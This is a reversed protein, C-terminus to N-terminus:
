PETWRESREELNRAGATPRPCGIRDEAGQWFFSDYGLPFHPKRLQRRAFPEQKGLKPGAGPDIPELLPSSTRHCVGARASPALAPWSSIATHCRSGQSPVRHGQHRQVHM